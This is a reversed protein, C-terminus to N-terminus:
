NEVPITFSIQKYGGIAPLVLYYMEKDPDFVLKRELGDISVFVRKNLPPISFWVKVNTMYSTNDNKFNVVYNDDETRSISISLNKRKETWNILDSFTTIWCNQEALQAYLNKGASDQDVYFVGGTKCGSKLIQQVGEGISPKYFQYINNTTDYNFFFSDSYGTTFIFSYGNQALMKFTDANKIDGYSLVGCYNQGTTETIIAHTKKLWANKEASGMQSFFFDDWIFNINNSDAAEKLQDPYRELFAPSVFYNLSGSNENSKQSTNIGSSIEVNKYIIASCENSGPWYNIFAEPQSSLWKLSNYILIDKNQDIIQNLGFGFWLIRGNLFSNSVIGPFKYDPLLYSGGPHSNGSLNDAYYLSSSFSLLIKQGPKLDVSFPTGGELFHNISLKENKSVVKIEFNLLNGNGKIRRTGNEDFEAFNGTLLLGKGEEMLQELENLMDESVVEMSPVVVADIDIGIEDIENDDLMEYDYDRSLFFLEWDETPKFAPNNKYLIDKTLSPYILAVKINSKEAPIIPVTWLGALLISLIIHYKKM